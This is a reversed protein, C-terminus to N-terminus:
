KSIIYLAALVAGIILVAKGYDPKAVPHNSDDTTMREGSPKLNAQTGTSTTDTNAPLISITSTKAPTASFINKVQDIISPKNTTIKTQTGPSTQNSNQKYPIAISGKLSVQGTPDTDTKLGPTYVAHFNIGNPAKGDKKVQGTRDYQQKEQNAPAQINNGYLYKYAPTQFIRDGFLDFPNNPKLSVPSTHTPKMANETAATAPTRGNTPTLTTDGM